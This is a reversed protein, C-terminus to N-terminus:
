QTHTIKLITGDKDQVVAEPTGGRWHKPLTGLVHWVGDEYKAHYPACNDFSKPYEKKLVPLAIKLVAQETLNTKLKGLTEFHRRVDELVIRGKIKTDLQRYSQLISHIPRLQLVVQSRSKDIYIVPYNIARASGQEIFAGGFLPRKGLYVIFSKEILRLGSLRESASSNLTIEQDQWNYTEIDKDTLMVTGHPPTELLKRWEPDEYNYPLVDILRDAIVYIEFHGNTQPEAMSNEGHEVICLFTVFCIIIVSTKVHYLDNQGGFM